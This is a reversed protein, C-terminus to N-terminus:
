NMKLERVVRFGVNPQTRDNAEAWDRAGARLAAPRESWSGGRTVRESCDGSEVAAGDSRAASKEVSWCDLTWQRVNGIINYLGFPNAAGRDVPETHQGQNYAKPSNQYSFRWDYVAVDPTPVGFWFPKLDCSASLCGRAAYEWEAESPLRYTQGTKQSLWQAYTQADNWSVFIAPRRGRGFGMDGQRRCVGDAVCADWEAFTVAYRGIAFPKGIVVERPGFEAKDDRGAEGFPSGITARGAPAVVMEPCDECERFAEGGKPDLPPATAIPQDTFKALPAPKSEPVLAAVSATPSAPSAAVSPTAPVVARVDSQPTSVVPEAPPTPSVAAVSPPAPRPAPEAPPSTSAQPSSVVPAAQPTPPGAAVSTPTPSAPPAAVAPSPASKTEPTPAIAPAPPPAVAEITAFASYQPAAVAPRPEPAAPSPAAQAIPPAAPAVRPEPAAPSPAAPRASPAASAVTEPPRSREAIVPSAPRLAVYAVGGLAIAVVAAVVAPLGRRNPHVEPATAMLPVPPRDTPGGAVIARLRDALRDVGANWGDFVDIWQRTALEYRFAKSPEVAEIRVPIVPINRQSALAIEKKIEASGDAHASFVLVMGAAQEIADVIVDGYNDGGPIDRNSVWCAIGRAELADVLTIVRARDKSSHSIFVTKRVFVPGGRMEPPFSRLPARSPDLGAAPARRKKEAPSTTAVAPEAVAGKRNGWGDRSL